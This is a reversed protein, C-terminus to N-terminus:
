TSTLALNYFDFCSFDSHFFTMVFVQYLNTIARDVGKM